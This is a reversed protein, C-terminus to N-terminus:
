LSTTDHSRKLLSPDAHWFQPVFLRVPCVYMDIRPQVVLEFRTRTRKSKGGAIQFKSWILRCWQESIAKGPMWKVIFSVFMIASNVLRFLGAGIWQHINAFGTTRSAQFAEIVLVMIIHHRPIFKWDNHAMHWTFPPFYSDDDRIELLSLAHNKLDNVLWWVRWLKNVPWLTSKLLKFPRYCFFHQQSTGKAHVWIVDDTGRMTNEVHDQEHANTTRFSLITAAPLSAFIRRETKRLRYQPDEPLGLVGFRVSCFSGSSRM